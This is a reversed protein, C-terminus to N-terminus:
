PKKNCIKKFFYAGLSTIYKISFLPFGTVPDLFDLIISEFFATSVVAPSLAPLEM